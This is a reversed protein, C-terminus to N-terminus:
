GLSANSVINRDLSQQTTVNNAVVYAQIPQQERGLTQQIQNVGANGVVNFSPASPAGGGGGSPATAGGGKGGPTKVSLIKKVNMLGGAVAIGAAISARVPSSPDGPILQSTYAQQAALYTSVTTSAVALAKGAGTTEGLIDSAMSLANSVVELNQRKAQAERKDIEERSKAFEEQLKTRQEESLLKDEILATERETLIARQEEFTLAEFEKNLELEELKKEQDKAKKDQAEKDDKEKQEKKRNREQEDYKLNIDNQENLIQLELETTDKGYKRLLALKADNKIKNDNLEKERETLVSDDNAKVAEQQIKKIEELDKKQQDRLEQRAKDREEKRRKENEKASSVEATKIEVLHRNQIDKKEDLAKRVDQNQKNFQKISESATEQQKKIVEEDAGAAKLSALTNLNKQYTNEAIARQSKEYAIKEDILKLELKRIAEASMGSAKAMALEQKQKKDFQESNRELTKTQSELAVRNQEVAASNQKAAESNDIFYKTLAVGAAILAVVAAIIAGIPNAAQAANWLWQGATIAKQVITFKQAEAALRRFEKGSDAIVSLSQSLAMASQVKLLAEQAGEGEVGVLGLAAQYGQLANAGAAIANTAVQFRKGPDYLDSTEKAEQVKDKLLAVKKAADLAAASYDGFEEQAKILEMTAERIQTKLSATQKDTEQVAKNLNDLGGLAKLEDVDIEIVKTIM